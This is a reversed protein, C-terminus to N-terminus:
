GVDGPPQLHQDLHEFDFVSLEFAAQCAMLALAHRAEADEVSRVAVALLGVGGREPAFETCNTAHLNTRGAMAFGEVPAAGAM